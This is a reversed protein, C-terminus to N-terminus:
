FIYPKEYLIESLVMPLVSRISLHGYRKFKNNLAFKQRSKRYYKKLHLKFRLLKFIARM